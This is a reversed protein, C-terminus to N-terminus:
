QFDKMLIADQSTTGRAVALQRGDRSWDFSFILGSQFNTIQRPQGGALPQRWINSVGGRTMFYDLVKEEPAWRLGAAGAPFEFRYLPQGGDFPVVTLVNASSPMAGWALYAVLKGDPSVRARPGNRDHIDLQTPMGGDIPIRWLSRDGSIVYMVWKGDPSCSPIGAFVVDTLQVRNSGDADMRWVNVKENRYAQFAIHPGDGCAAPQYNNNEGPALVTRHSGDPGLAFLEGSMNSYVIRGDPLWSLSSVAPDGATIQRASSADGSSSVWLDAATRSEITVLTSRDRTLDLSAPQYDMLDNTFRRAEGDPFTIHWLQGRFGQSPDVVVALLGSGDALWRVQGVGNPSSYIANM